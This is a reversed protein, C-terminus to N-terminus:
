IIDKIMIFLSVDCRLNLNETIIHCVQLDMVAKVFLSTTIANPPIGDDNMM